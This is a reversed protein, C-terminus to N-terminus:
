KGTIIMYGIAGSGDEKRMNLWMERGVSKRVRSTSVKSKRDKESKGRDSKEHNEM